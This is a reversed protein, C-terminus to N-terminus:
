SHGRAVDNDLRVLVDGFRAGDLKLLFIIAMQQAGFAPVGMGAMVHLQTDFKNKFVGVYIGPRQRLKHFTKMRIVVLTKFLKSENTVDHLVHM